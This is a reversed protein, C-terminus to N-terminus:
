FLHKIFMVWGEPIVSRWTSQGARPGLAIRYTCAASHLPALAPDLDTDALDSMGQEEILYGKRTLLKMSWYIRPMQWDAQADNVIAFGNAFLM